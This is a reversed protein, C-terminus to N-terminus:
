PTKEGSCRDSQPEIKEYFYQIPPVIFPLPWGRLAAAGAHRYLPRPGSGVGALAVPILGSPRDVLPCSAWQAVLSFYFIM